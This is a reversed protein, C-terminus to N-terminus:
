EDTQIEYLVNEFNSNFLTIFKNLVNKDVCYCTKPGEIEGRIIGSKKLISLHQSVTSQALPLEDVLQGCICRDKKLLYNVIYIRVPNSLAKCYLALESNDHLDKM